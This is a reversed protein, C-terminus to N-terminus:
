RKPLASRPKSNAKEVLAFKTGLDVPGKVKVIISNGERNSTGWVVLDDGIVVDAISNLRIEATGIKITIKKMFDDSGTAGITADYITANIQAQTKGALKSLDGGLYKTKIGNLLDMTGIKDYVKNKGPGLVFVLYTGKDADEDVDIDILWAFDSSVSAVEYVIGSPLSNAESNAPNMGRGDGGKPAVILIDVMKSGLATGRLTFSDGPPVLTASSEATLSGTVMLVM